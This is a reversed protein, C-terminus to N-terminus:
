VRSGGFVATYQQRSKDNAFAAFRGSFSRHYSKQREELAASLRGMALVTAPVPNDGAMMDRAFEELKQQQVVMDNFGGLIDQLQKLENVFGAVTDAPFLGAFFELSYRLKKADIRLRHLAAAPPHEGLERGHKMIKTYAKLIRSGALDAVPRAADIPEEGSDCPSVLVERWESALRQYRKTRLGGRVRRLARRREQEIMRQLPGLHEAAGELMARYGTMEILYVDLDRLPGTVDGLWDFEPIFKELIDRPLVDKLQTVASRTRRIAVRLDHLFEVDLDGIVGDVNAEVVELLHLLIARLAIDARTDPRLKLSPKSSYDGPRRGRAKAAYELIDTDTVEVAGSGLGLKVVRRYAKEHGPLGEIRLVSLPDEAPQGDDDLVRATELWLHVAINGDRDLWRARCRELTCEGMPLLTRLGLIPELENRLYGPPLDRLFGVDGTVPLSYPSAGGPPSWHLISTRGSEERTLGGGAKWLSWEFTDLYRIRSTTSRDVELGRGLLEALSEETSPGQFLLLTRL